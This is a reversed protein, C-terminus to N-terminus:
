TGGAGSRTVSVELLCGRVPRSSCLLCYMVAAAATMESVVMLRVVSLDTKV